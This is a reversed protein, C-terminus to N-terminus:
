PEAVRPWRDAFRVMADPIGVTSIMVRRPDVHFGQPDVIVALVADLQAENHFPEGMGMFVVNRLTRREGALLRSAQALQDLIEAASLSRAIAM